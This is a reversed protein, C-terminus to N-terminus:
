AKSEPFDEANQLMSEVYQEYVGQIKTLLSALKGGDQNIVEQFTKQAAKPQPLQTLLKRELDALDITLPGHSIVCKGGTITQASLTISPPVAESTQPSSRGM